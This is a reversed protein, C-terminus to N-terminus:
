GRARVERDDAAVPAIARIGAKPVDVAAVGGGIRIRVDARPQRDIM